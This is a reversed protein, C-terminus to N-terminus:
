FFYKIIKPLLKGTNNIYEAYEPKNKIQRKEMLPISIILFMLNNVLPDFFMYWYNISISLLMFYIRWWMLIEGLYNPHRSIKWLGINIVGKKNKRFKHMQLDSVLQLIASVLCICSSLILGINVNNYNQIFLISPM